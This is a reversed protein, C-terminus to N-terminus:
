LVQTYNGADGPGPHEGGNSVRTGLSGVHGKAESFLLCVTPAYVYLNPLVGCIMLFFFSQEM